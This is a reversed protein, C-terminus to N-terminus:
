MARSLVGIKWADDMLVYGVQGLPLLKKKRFQLFCEPSSSIGGFGFGAITCRFAKVVYLENNM